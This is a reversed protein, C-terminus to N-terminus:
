VQKEDIEEIDMGFVTLSAKTWELQCWAISSSNLTRWFLPVQFSTGKGEPFYTPQQHIKAILIPRSPVIITKFSM